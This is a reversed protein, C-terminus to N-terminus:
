SEIKEYESAPDKRENSHFEATRRMSEITLVPLLTILLIRAEFLYLFTISAGVLSQLIPSVLEPFNWDSYQLRVVEL